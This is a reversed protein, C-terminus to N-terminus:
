TALEIIAKVRVKWKTVKQNEEAVKGIVDHVEEYISNLVMM